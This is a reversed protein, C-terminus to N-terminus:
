TAPLFYDETNRYYCLECTVWQGKKRTKKGQCEPCGLDRRPLGMSKVEEPPAALTFTTLFQKGYGIYGCSLDGPKVGKKAFEAPDSTCQYIDRGIQTICSNGCKPCFM